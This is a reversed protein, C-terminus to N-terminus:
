ATLSVTLVQGTTGFTQPYSAGNLTNLSLNNQIVAASVNTLGTIRGSGSVDLNYSPTCGIGLLRASMDGRLFPHSNYETGYVMFVDGSANLNSSGPNKGLFISNSVAGQLNFENDGAHYGIGIVDDGGNNYLAQTGIGITRDGAAFGGANSGIFIDLGSGSTISYEGAYPGIFVSYNDESSVGAYVGICVTQEAANSQGAGDGIFICESASNQYGAANGIAIVRNGSNGYAASDGVAHVYDGQNQAGANTGQLVVSQGNNNAGAKLGFITTGVPAYVGNTDPNVVALLIGEM